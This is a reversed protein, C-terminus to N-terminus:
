RQMGHLRVPAAAPPGFGPNDDVAGIAVLFGLRDTELSARAIKGDAIQFIAFGPSTVRKGNPEFTGVAGVYTKTFTGTWTWHVAVRDGESVLEEVSYVLDPFAARLRAVPVSFAAPGRQGTASAFDSSLVEDLRQLEGTSLYNDFLSRVIQKNSESSMPTRQPTTCAAVACAVLSAVIFRM